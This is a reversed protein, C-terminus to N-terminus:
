EGRTRGEAEFGHIKRLFTVIKLYVFKDIVTGTEPDALAREGNEFQCLEM